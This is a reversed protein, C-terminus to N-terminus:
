FDLNIRLKKWFEIILCSSKIVNLTVVLINGKSSDFIRSEVAELFNISQEYNMKSTFRKLLFSKAEIM